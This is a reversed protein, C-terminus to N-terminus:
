RCCSNDITLTDHWNATEDFGDLSLHGLALVAAFTRGTM